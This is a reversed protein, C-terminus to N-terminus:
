LNGAVNRETYYPSSDIYSLIEGNRYIAHGSYINKHQHQIIQPIIYKQHGPMNSLDLQKVDLWIPKGEPGDAFFAGSHDMAKIIYMVGSQDENDIWSFTGWLFPNVLHGGTEERFEREASELIGEGPEIKGGPPVQRGSNIKKGDPKQLYLVKDQCFLYILSFPLFRTALFYESPFDNGTKTM